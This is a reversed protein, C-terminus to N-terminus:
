AWISGSTKAVYVVGNKLSASKKSIQLSSVDKKVTVVLYM